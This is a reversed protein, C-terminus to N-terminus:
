CKNRASLRQALPAALFWVQPGFPIGMIAGTTKGAAYPALGRAVAGAMGGATTEPQESEQFAKALDDADQEIVARKTPDKEAEAAAVANEFATGIDDRTPKREPEENGTTGVTPRWRPDGRKIPPPSVTVSLAM